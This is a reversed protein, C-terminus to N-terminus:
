QPPSDSPSPPTMKMLFRRGIRLPNQQSQSITSYRTLYNNVVCSKDGGSLFGELINSFNFLDVIRRGSVM